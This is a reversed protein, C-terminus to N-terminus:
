EEGRIVEALEIQREIDAVIARAVMCAPKNLYKKLGNNDFLWNLDYECQKLWHQKHAEKM